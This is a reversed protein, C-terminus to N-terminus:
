NKVVSVLNKKFTISIRKQHYSSWFNNRLRRLFQKEIGVLESPLYKDDWLNFCKETCELHEKTESSNLIRVIWKYDNLASKMNISVGMKNKQLSLYKLTLNL